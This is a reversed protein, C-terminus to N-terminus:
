KAVTRFRSPDRPLRVELSDSGPQLGMADSGAQTWSGILICACAVSVSSCRMCLPQNEAARPYRGWGSEGLKVLIAAIPASYLIRRVDGAEPRLAHLVRRGHRCACRRFVQVTP